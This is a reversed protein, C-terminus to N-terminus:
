HAPAAKGAPTLLRQLEEGGAVAGVAGNTPAGANIWWQLLSIEAATPQPKGSPPMHDDDDLPLLLRHIMLSESANGVVLAPGTEGGALMRELSDLRLKAKQKSASHCTWCRQRFIPQIVDAFIRRQAPDALAPQLLAPDRPGHLLARLPGPAYRTLFDSGHTLSGGLHGTVALLALTVGLSCQYTRTRGALSVVWTALCALALCFGAWKHWSVLQADYEGSHSLLWGCTASVLAGMTAFGLIWRRNDAAAKFRPRTALLELTGLLVLAGVPLHVLLPHFRGVFLSLANPADAM